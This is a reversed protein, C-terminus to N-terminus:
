FRWWALRSVLELRELRLSRPASLTVENLRGRTYVREAPLRAVYLLGGGADTLPVQAGNWTVTMPSPAQAPSVAAAQPRDSLPPRGGASLLLRLDLPERAYLPILIRWKLTDIDSPEAFVYPSPERLSVGTPGMIFSRVRWDRELFYNGVIGEFASPPIHYVLAYLWGAPQAFPYGFRTFGRQLWAPGHAWRVWEAAPFAGSSSSKVRRQRVLEMLLLNYAILVAAVAILLRSRWRPQTCLWAFASALGAAFIPTADTFRRPGFAWSGHFDWAAANVWLDILFLLLLRLHLGQRRLPPLLLGLLAIYLVPVWPFLGARLSFLTEILAPNLWRMHGPLQPTRLRGFFYVWLVVQPLFVLGATVIVLVGSGVIRRAEALDFRRVAVGLQRLLPLGPLLLFIAEQLRMLMCVGALAGLEVWKKWEGLSAAEALSPRLLDWREIFLAVAAFACAHQYLPQTVFYFCLPTAWVATVTGFRAAGVTFWRRLVRFMAAVGVQGFMLAGLGAFFFDTSNQGFPKGAPTPVIHLKQLLLGLLYTPAWIFVPGIPCPNAVHGTPEIGLAPLQEPITYRLDLSHHFLLGPMYMFGLFGDGSAKGQFVGPTLFYYILVTLGLVAICLDEAALLGYLRRLFM